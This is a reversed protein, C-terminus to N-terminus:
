PNILEVWPQGTDLRVPSYIGFDNEPLSNQLPNKNPAIGYRAQYYHYFGEGDQVYVKSNNSYSINSQWKSFGALPLTGGQNGGASQTTVNALRSTRSIVIDDFYTYQDTRPAWESTSGGFFTEFLLKDITVQGSTRLRLRDSVLVQEGNIYTTVRGDRQGLTNLVVHSTITHWRGKTFSYNYSSYDGCHATKEPHYLYEMARGNERWMLRASFGNLVNNAVCGTPKTGTYGALGPLKGGKVWTFNKDFMVKYQLWLQNHPAGPIKYTFTSASGGGIQNRRYTVRLVKNGAQQPDAVIALRSDAVGAAANPNFGWDAAFRAATYTGVAHQNFNNFYLAAGATSSSTRSSSPVRSSSSVSAPASSRSSARSSAPASSSSIAKSSSSRKLSSSLSSAGSTTCVGLDTWAMGWAWGVGPEYAGGQSCWGGVECRYARGKHKVQQGSATGGAVYASLNTCNYAAVHNALLLLLSAAAYRLLIM